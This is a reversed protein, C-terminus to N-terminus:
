RSRWSEPSCDGWVNYERRATPAIWHTYTHLRQQLFSISQLKSIGHISWALATETRRLLSAFHFKTPQPNHGPLTNSWTKTNANKMMMMMMMMILMSLSRWVRYDHRRSGAKKEMPRNGDDMGYGSSCDLDTEVQRLCSFRPQTTSREKTELMM